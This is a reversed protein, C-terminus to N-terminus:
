THALDFETWNARPLNFVYSTAVIQAAVLIAFEILRGTLRAQGSRGGTQDIKDSSFFAVNNIPSKM